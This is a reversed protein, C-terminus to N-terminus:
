FKINEKLVKKSIIYAIAAMIAILSLTIAVYSVAAGTSVSIIVNASGLDDESTNKNGATSDLDNIGRTNYDEKIEATNNVLGTNTETM